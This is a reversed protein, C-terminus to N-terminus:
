CAICRCDVCVEQKSKIEDSIDGLFPVHYFCVLCEDGALSESPLLTVHGAARRFDHNQYIHLLHCLILNSFAFLFLKVMQSLHSYLFLRACVDNM